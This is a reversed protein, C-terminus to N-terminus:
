GVFAIEGKWRLAFLTADHKSRLSYIVERLGDTADMLNAEYRDRCNDKLWAAVTDVLNLPVSCKNRYNKPQSTRAALANITKNDVSHAILSKSGSSQGIYVDDNAHEGVWQKFEGLSWFAFSPTSIYTRYIEEGWLKAIESLDSSFDIVEMSYGPMNTSMTTNYSQTSYDQQHIHGNITKYRPIIILDPM